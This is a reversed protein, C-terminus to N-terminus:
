KCILWLDERVSILSNRDVSSIGIRFSDYEYVSLQHQRTRSNRSLNALFSTYLAIFIPSPVRTPTLSRHLVCFSFSCNMFLIKRRIRNGALLTNPGDLCGIMTNQLSM